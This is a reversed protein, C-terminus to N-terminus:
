KLGRKISKEYYVTMPPTESTVRTVFEVLIASVLKSICLYIRMFIYAFDYLLVPLTLLIM